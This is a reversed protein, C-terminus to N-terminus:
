CDNWYFGRIENTHTTQRCPDRYAIQVGLTCSPWFSPDSGRPSSNYFNLAAMRISSILGPDQTLGTWTLEGDVLWASKVSGLESRGSEHQLVSPEPQVCLAVIVRCFLSCWLPRHSGCYPIVRTPLARPLLSPWDRGFSSTLLFCSLFLIPQSFFFCFRFPKSVM